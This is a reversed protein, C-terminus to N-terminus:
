VSINKMKKTVRSVSPKKPEKKVTEPIKNFNITNLPSLYFMKHLLFEVYLPKRYEETVTCMHDVESCATVIYEKLKCIDNCITPHQISDYFQLLDESIMQFTGNHICIKQTIKRIDEMSPLSAITTQLFEYFLPLNYLCLSETVDNPYKEALWSIFLAYYFDYYRKSKRLLPHYIRGLSIFCAEIEEITFVPCRILLFRSQLPGEIGGIHTTTCIFFANKSYRELLVRLATARLKDSIQEISKLIIIHRDEHICPHTILSKIFESFTNMDKTQHPYLLDIEFFYQTEYYTVSKQWVYQTKTYTGFKKRLATEWIFDFPIGKCGYFLINPNSRFDLEAIRNSINNHYPIHQLCVEFNSKVSAWIEDM